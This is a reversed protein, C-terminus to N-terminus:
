KAGIRIQTKVPFDPLQQAPRIATGAAHMTIVWGRRDADARGRVYYPISLRGTHWGRHTQSGISSALSFKDRHVSHSLEVGVVGSAHADAVQGRLGARVAERAAQFAESLEALERNQAPTRMRRLRTDLAAAAFTVATTAVLGVPEHGASRLRWYDQVSVDTLVPRSSKDAGPDRIATGTVICEILGKGLDHDSRQLRVGVVADAGVQLAEEALRDLARRRALNWANTLVDLECVVAAHWKYNRIQSPSAETVRNLLDMGHSSPAYSSGPGGWVVTGPELAPLYQWGPRVVSAGMVQALPEPGLRDLLAFENVSLGSTFLSGDSGLARLRDQARPPIGGAEIRALAEAQEGDEDKGRSFFGM